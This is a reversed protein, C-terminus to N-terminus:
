SSRLEDEDKDFMKCASIFKDKLYEYGSEALNIELEIENLGDDYEESALLQALQKKEESSPKSGKEFHAQWGVYVEAEKRKMAAKLSRREAELTKM